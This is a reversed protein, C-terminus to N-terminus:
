PYYRMLKVREDYTTVLRDICLFLLAQGTSVPPLTPHERGPLVSIIRTDNTNSGNGMGHWTTRRLYRLGVRHSSPKSSTYTSVSVRVYVM